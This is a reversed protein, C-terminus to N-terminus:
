RTVVCVNRDCLLEFQEVSKYIARHARVTAVTKEILRDVM